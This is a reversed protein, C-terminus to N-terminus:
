HCQKEAMGSDSFVSEVMEAFKAQYHAESFCTEVRKRGAEGMSRRMEYDSLLLRMKRELDPINESEFLLGTVGDDVVEPIGGVRAAVAAKGSAMAELLVRGMAESRSPLVFFKCEKFYRHIEDYFVPKLFEIRDCLSAQQRYKELDIRNHGMILLRCGPFDQSLNLFATILLDVGKIHFPHGAFFIYDKDESSPLFLSIPVYDHFCFVPVYHILPQVEDVLTTNICKIGDANRLVWKITLQYLFKRLRDVIGSQKLFGAELLHGNIEVLLKAKTIKKILVGIIGLTLPDHSIILDFQRDRYLAIGSRVVEVINKLKQLVSYKMPLALAHLVFGGLTLGDFESSTRCLIYGSYKDSIFQYKGSFNPLDPRYCPPVLMLLKRRQPSM